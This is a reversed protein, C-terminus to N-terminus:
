VKNEFIYVYGNTVADSLDGASDVVKEDNFLIWKEEGEIIKKIFAVYHGTHPSSGKHCVVAKLTFKPNKPKSELEAIKDKTSAPTGLAATTESEIIGDDEPNNFLWEVAANPDNSNLLLAKKALLHSFGMMALNDIAEQPPNSAQGGPQDAISPAVFPDNLDPDELHLFLWNMADEANSNGTHFLARTSGPELFGMGLLTDLASQNPVFKDEKDEAEEPLLVEGDELGLGQFNTLDLEHPITIPVDIKVPVWNELKIRKANVILTDPFSKFGISKFINESQCNPCKYGELLEPSCYDSFSEGFTVEKYTKTKTEEDVSLVVDNVPISMNDVIETDLKVNNCDLCKIKNELLFNFPKNLSPDLKKATQELFYLLFEFADQQRQTKFEAHNEGILTKFTSPRLGMQFSSDKRHSPVSYRGSSLGDYIKILQTLLDEYPKSTNPFEQKAFFEKYHDLSFLAQITSNLYCSNGLNQFGTLDPGFVSELKEGNAGDLKFDWNLNQDLNLEILNRETKVLTSLDIGYLLLIDVLGPVKVEDNCKYCYCDYNDLDLSGLKVAVCHDPNQEFHALGHGNGKLTSGFQQRGCGISGCHLCIWLNEKLDCQGCHSLDVERPEPKTLMLTHECPFIEQEWTKIEDEKSSSNSKIIDLILSQVNAPAQGLDISSDNDVNYVSYKFDYIDEDRIDKVELKQIKTPSGTSGEENAEVISDEEEKPKLSKVINLYYTHGKTLKHQQTYNVHGRSFAQFCSLCVDLGNPNNEATDFSYMCDDKFVKTGRPVSLSLSELSM